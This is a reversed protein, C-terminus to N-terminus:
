CGGSSDVDAVMPRKPRLPEFAETSPSEDAVFLVRLELAPRLDGVLLRDVLPEFKEEGGIGSTVKGLGGSGANSGAAYRRLMYETLSLDFGIRFRAFLFRKFWKSTSM